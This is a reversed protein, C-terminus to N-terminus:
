SWLQATERYLTCASFMLRGKPCMYLPKHPMLNSTSIVWPQVGGTRTADAPSLPNHRTERTQPIFLVLSQRAYTTAMYVSAPATGM